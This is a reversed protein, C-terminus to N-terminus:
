AIRWTSTITSPLGAIASGLVAFPRRERINAGSTRSRGQVVLHDIIRRSGLVGSSRTEIRAQVM